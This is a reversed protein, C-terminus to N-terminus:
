CFIYLLGLVRLGSILQAKLKIRSQLKKQQLAKVEINVKGIDTVFQLKM